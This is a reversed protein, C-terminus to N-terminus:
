RPDAQPYRRCVARAVLGAVIPLPLSAAFRLGTFEWGMLPIEWVLLRNLGISSWAALFAVLAGMDAGAQGLAYVLPFSAFPGGPMIAGLGTALFLGCLGSERGLWGAVRHRPVLVTVAAAVLLGLAVHPVLAAIQVLARSTSAAVAQRGDIALSAAGAALALAVFALTSVHNARRRSENRDASDRPPREPRM